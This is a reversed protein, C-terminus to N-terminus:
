RIFYVAEEPPGVLLPALQQMSGGEAMAAAYQDHIERSEWIESLLVNAPDDAAQLVEVAHCGPVELLSTKAGQMIGVFTDVHEPRVSFSVLLRIQM